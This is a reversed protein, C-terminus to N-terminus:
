GNPPGGIVQPPPAPLGAQFPVLPPPASTAPPGVVPPSLQTPMTAPPSIVPHGHAEVMARATDLFHKPGVQKLMAARFDPDSWNRHWTALYEATTLKTGGASQLEDALRATLAKVDAALEAKMRAAVQDLANPTKM